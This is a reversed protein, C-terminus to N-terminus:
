SMAQKRPPNVRKFKKAREPTTEPCDEDFVIAMSRAKKLQELEAESFDFEKNSYELVNNTNAM